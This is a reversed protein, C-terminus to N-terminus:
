VKPSITAIVLHCTECVIDAFIKGNVDEHFDEVFFPADGCLECYINTEAINLTKM